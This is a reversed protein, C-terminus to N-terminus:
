TLNKYDTGSVIITVWAQKMPLNTVRDAGALHDARGGLQGLVGEARTGDATATAGM